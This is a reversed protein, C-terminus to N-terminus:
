SASMLDVDLDLFGNRAGWIVAKSRSSVGIKRYASRVYTKVSNISLHLGDAIEQNSLGQSIMRLMDCERPSLAERLAGRETITFKPHEWSTSM